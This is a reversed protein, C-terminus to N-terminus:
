DKNNLLFKSSDDKSRHNFQNKNFLIAASRIIQRTRTSIFFGYLILNIRYVHSYSRKVKIKHKKQSKDKINIRARYFEILILM